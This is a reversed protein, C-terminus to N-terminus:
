EEVPERRKDSFPKGSRKRNETCIYCSCNKLHEALRVTADEDWHNQRAIRRAKQKTKEMLQRRRARKKNKEPFDDYM